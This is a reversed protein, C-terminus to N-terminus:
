GEFWEFITVVCTSSAACAYVEVPNDPNFKIPFENGPYLPYGGAGGVPLTDKGIRVNVSEENMILMGIRGAKTGLEVPTTTLTVATTTYNATLGESTLAELEAIILDQKATSPDLAYNTGDGTIYVNGTDTEIFKTGAPVGVPKTESSLGIWINDGHVQKM